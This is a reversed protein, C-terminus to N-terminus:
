RLSPYQYNIATSPPLQLHIHMDYNLLAPAASETNLNRVAIDKKYLILTSLFPVSCNATCTSNNYPGATPKNDCETVNM